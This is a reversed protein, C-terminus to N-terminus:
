LTPTPSFRPTNTRTPTSSPRTTKSPVPTITITPTNTPTPNLISLPTYIRDVVQGLSGMLGLDSKNYLIRIASGSGTLVEIQKNGGFPYVM